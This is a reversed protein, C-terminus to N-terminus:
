MEKIRRLAENQDAVELMGQTKLGVADVAEYCYNSMREPQNSLIAATGDRANPTGHERNRSRSGYCFSRDVPGCIFCPYLGPCNVRILPFWSTAPSKAEVGIRYRHKM